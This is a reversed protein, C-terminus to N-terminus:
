ILNFDYPSFKKRFNVTMSTEEDKSVKCAKWDVREPMNLLEPSALVERGFQLPMKSKVRHLLREGNDFEAMFYPTTESLIQQLDEEEPIENLELNQLQGYAMFSEKAEGIKDKPIPVAQLQLHQTYFNREFIVLSMGQKKFMKRLSQKYKELEMLSEEPLVVTSNYHHIPCILVHDPTLGGKALALYTLNGVSIVLHKEVQPSGLCFWCPGTLAPPGKPQKRKGDAGSFDHKRKKSENLKKQDFFFQQADKQSSDQQEDRSAIAKKYPFETTDEPQNVLEQRDILSIPSLSFAYIYKKNDKNLFPALSIFRTVHEQKGVLVQHNRYPPREFHYDEHCSLHYRPKLTSACMSLLSSANSVDFKSRTYQTVDKPWVSTLLIDVGIFKEDEKVRKLLVAIDSKQFTHSTKNSATYQEGSIYAIKIGSMFTYIGQKGLYTINEALEGGDDKMDKYFMLEDKSIPGLIYVPLPAKIIGDCCEKWEKECSDSVEFFQGPCVVAEFPGNKKHISSIKKFFKRLQGKASGCFLRAFHFSLIQPRYFIKSQDAM